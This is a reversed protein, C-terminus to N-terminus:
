AANRASSRGIGCTASVSSARGQVGIQTAEEDCGSRMSSEGACTVPRQVPKSPRAKEAVMTSRPLGAGSRKRCAARSM